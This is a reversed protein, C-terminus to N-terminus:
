ETLEVYNWPNKLYTNPWSIFQIVEISLQYLALLVIASLLIIDPPNGSRFNADSNQWITVLVLELLFPFIFICYYGRQVKKWHYNILAQVPFHGFLEM